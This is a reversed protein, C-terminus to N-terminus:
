ARGALHRVGARPGQGAIAETAEIRADNPGDAQPPKPPVDSAPETPALGAPNGM